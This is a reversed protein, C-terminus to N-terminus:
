CDANTETANTETTNTATANTETANTETTNTEMTNTEMANTEMTNTETTNTETANTETANTETANTEMTNTETTNTETTNLPEDPSPPSLYEFAKQSQSILQKLPALLLETASPRRFAAGASPPPPAERDPNQKLSSRRRGNPPNTEMTNTETANTETTNTATANTEMTNTETANTETTNLPEDPSPPSLYEFAKQSQSIFQKLPALLLETASPRRFAAGDSPPPPAERDPDQKLSSRRRGNPPNPSQSGLTARSYLSRRRRPRGDMAKLFLSSSSRRRSSECLFDEQNLFDEVEQQSPQQLMDYLPTTNVVLQLLIKSLEQLDRLIQQIQVPLERVQRVPRMEALMLAHGKVRSLTLERQSEARYVLAVLLNQLYQLLEGLLELVQGLGVQDAADGLASVADQLQQRLKMMRHHLQLSLGLLLSRVRTWLGPEEDEDEDQYEEVRMEWERRLPLPLPMYHATADELRSLVDDLGLTAARGVESEQLLRLGAWAAESVRELQDLAGDLGDVVWLQVDDLTMAVADKLHGVVEDTQQNLIPFNKELRDLGVLAFSNAVEIQPELSQLLPTAQKMAVLSISRVGVEAVGGMLGLLPYRGKVELYASTVSQLASQLLPLRSVRLAASTEYEPTESM